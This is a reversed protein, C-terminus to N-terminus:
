YMRMKFYGPTMMWSNQPFLVHAVADQKTPCCLPANVAYYPGRLEITGAVLRASLDCPNTVTMTPTVKGSPTAVFVAVTSSGCDAAMEHSQVVLQQKGPWLSGMLVATGVISVEQVPFWMAAGKAQTVRSLPVGNGPSQYVLRYGGGRLAYISLYWQYFNHGGGSGVLRKSVVARWRDSTGTFAVDKSQVVSGPPAPLYVLGARAPAIATLAWLIAIAVAVAGQKLNGRVM